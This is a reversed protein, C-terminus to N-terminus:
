ESVKKSRKPLLSWTLNHQELYEEFQSYKPGHGIREASLGLKSLRKTFAKVDNVFQFDEGVFREKFFLLQRNDGKTHDFVTVFDKRLDIKIRIQLEPLPKGDFDDYSHLTLKGSALHVKIVDTEDLDGFRRLGCLVYCRIVAPMRDFLSRHFSYHGEAADHWGCDVDKLALSLEDPDGSAFLLEMAHRKATEFDGFFSKIDRKMPASLHKRLFRREFHKMALYVLVDDKRIEKAEHLLEPGHYRLALEVSRKLGGTHRKLDDVADFEDAEPPRGLELMCAWLQDMLVRHLEYRGVMSEERETPQSFRLQTALQTWDVHRRSRSALFQERDEPKPFVLCIGLALTVAERDLCREILDELEGPAYFKQFTGSKTIFGDGMPRTHAETEQGRPLVSVIMVQDALRFAKKIAEEREAPHEIVNLVYGLNVVDASVKEGDPRFAPDWGGVEYGLSELGEVDMGRGCGYDFFSRGEKLLGHKMLLKVPKSLDYRKIATRHREVLASEAPIVEADCSAEVKVLKHGEYALGKKCLLSEWYLRLGIRSTDRYLGAEEEAKTLAAFKEIRPDGPPLFTEKRHLIPPNARQSYDTRVVRGSNLNIKTAHALAPHPNEDFDPYSLFTIAYEKTHLKLLNWGEPPQAASEARQIESHLPATSSWDAYRAIYTAEPLRKGYRLIDIQRKFESLDM